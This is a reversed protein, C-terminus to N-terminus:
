LRHDAPRQLELVRRDSRTKRSALETFRDFLQDFVRVVVIGLVFGAGTASLPHFKGPFLLSLVFGALALVIPLPLQSNAMDSM